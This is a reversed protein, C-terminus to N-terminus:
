HLDSFHRRIRHFLANRGLAFGEVCAITPEELQALANFMQEFVHHQEMWKKSNTLSQREKLDAGSCFSRGQGSLLVATRLSDGNKNSTRIRQCHQILQHASATNFANHQLPRNLLLHWLNNTVESLRVLSQQTM